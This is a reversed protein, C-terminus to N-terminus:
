EISIYIEQYDFVCNTAIEKNKLIEKVASIIPRYEFSYTQNNIKMVSTSFFETHNKKLTDLFHLGDKTLRPLMKKSIQGHKKIFKLIADGAIDIFDRYATNPFGANDID